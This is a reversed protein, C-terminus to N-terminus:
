PQPGLPSSKHRDQVLHRHERFYHKITDYRPVRMNPHATQRLDRVAQALSPKTPSLYLTLLPGCWKPPLAQNRRPPESAKPSLAKLGGAKYSKRWRYLTTDSLTRSRTKGVRANAKPILTQIRAPLKRKHALQVAKTIAASIGLDRKLALHNVFELIVLRARLVEAQWPKLPGIARSAKDPTAEPAIHM